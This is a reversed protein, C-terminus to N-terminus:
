SASGRSAGTWAVAMSGMMAALVAIVNVLRAFILVGRHLVCEEEGCVPCGPGGRLGRSQLEFNGYRLGEPSGARGSAPRFAQAVLSRAYNQLGSKASRAMM